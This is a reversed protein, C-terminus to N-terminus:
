EKGGLLRVQTRLFFAAAIGTISALFKTSVGALLEEKWGDGQSAHQLAQFAIILGVFTGFIGARELADAVYLIPSFDAPRWFLWFTSAFYCAIIGFSIRTIDQQWLVGFYGMLCAVAMIAFTLSTWVWWLLFTKTM